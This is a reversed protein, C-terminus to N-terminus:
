IWSVYLFIRPICDSKSIMVRRMVCLFPETLTPHPPNVRALHLSYYPLSELKAQLFLIYSGLRWRTVYINMNKVINRNVVAIKSWIVHQQYPAINSILIMDLIRNARSTALEPNIKIICRHTEQIKSGVETWSLYLIVGSNNYDCLLKYFRFHCM